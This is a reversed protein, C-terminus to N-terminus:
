TLRVRRNEGAPYEIVKAPRSKEVRLPRPAEM